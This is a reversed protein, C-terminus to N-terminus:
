SRSPLVSDACKLLLNTQSCRVVAFSSQRTAFLPETRTRASLIGSFPLQECTAAARTRAQCYKCVRKERRLKLISDLGDYGRLQQEDEKRLHDQHNRSSALQIAGCPVLLIQWLIAMEKQMIGFKGSWRSAREAM